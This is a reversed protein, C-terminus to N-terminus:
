GVEFTEFLVWVSELNQAIENGALRVNTRVRSLQAYQHYETRDAIGVDPQHHGRILVYWQTLVM